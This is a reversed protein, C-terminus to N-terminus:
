FGLCRNVEVEFGTGYTGILTEQTKEALSKFNYLEHSIIFEVVMLIAQSKNTMIYVEIRYKTLYFTGGRREM